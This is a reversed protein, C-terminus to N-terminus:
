LVRLIDGMMEQYEEVVGGWLSGFKSDVAVGWWDESEIEYCWSWKGLL